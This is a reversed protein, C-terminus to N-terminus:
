PDTGTVLEALGTEEVNFFRWTSNRSWVWLERHIKASVPVSRLRSISENFQAEIEKITCHLRLTRKVCVIVEKMAGLIILDCASGSDLWTRFVVGKRRAIPMADDLAKKPPRGRTM